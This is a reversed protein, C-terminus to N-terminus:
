ETPLDRVADHRQGFGVVAGRVARRRRASREASGGVEALERRHDEDLRELLGARHDALWRHTDAELDRRLRDPCDHGGQRTAARSLRRKKASKGLGQRQLDHLAGKLPGAAPVSFDTPYEGEAFFGDTQARQMSRAGFPPATTGTETSM